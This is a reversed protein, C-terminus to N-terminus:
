RRKNACVKLSSRRGDTQGDEREVNEVSGALGSRLIWRRFTSQAQLDATFAAVEDDPFYIILGETM